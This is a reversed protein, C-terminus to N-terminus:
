SKNNLTRKIEKAYMDLHEENENPLVDKGQGAFIRDALGDLINAKQLAIGRDADAMIILPTGPEIDFMDRIEKPIVIQGKIGVKVTSMYHTQRENM